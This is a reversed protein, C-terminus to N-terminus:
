RHCDVSRSIWQQREAAGIRGVVDGVSPGALTGRVKADARPSHAFNPRRGHRM